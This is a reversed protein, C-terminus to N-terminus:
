DNDSNERTPARYPNLNKHPYKHAWVRANDRGAREGEDWADAVWEMIQEAMTDLVGVEPSDFGDEYIVLLRESITQADLM